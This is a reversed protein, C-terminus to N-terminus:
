LGAGDDLGLLVRGVADYTPPGVMIHQTVTHVDRFCRALTGQRELVGTGGAATHVLDVADAAWRAASTAALRVAAREAPPIAGTGTAASWAQGVADDLLARGARLLADARAIDGQVASREALKRATMSPTKAGALALLDDLAHRAIGLAVAAVGVALLGMVPFAYLPGPAVPRGGLAALRRDPVFRDTVALDHSGTGRLGMSWWTDIIEVDASPLFALRHGEDTICGVMLWDCHQSGSGWAWRGSM